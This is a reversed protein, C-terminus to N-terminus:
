PNPSGATVTLPAPEIGPQLVSIRCAVHYLWFFFFTICVCVCVCVYMYCFVVRCTESPAHGERCRSKPSKAELVKFCYM